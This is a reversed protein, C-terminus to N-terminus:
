SACEVEEEVSEQSIMKGQEYVTTTNYGDFNEETVVRGESVCECWSHVDNLLRHNGYCQVEKRDHSIDMDGFNGMIFMEFDELLSFVVCISCWM